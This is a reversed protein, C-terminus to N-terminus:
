KVEFDLITKDTEYHFYLKGCKNYYFGISFVYINKSIIKFDKGNLEDFIKRCEKYAYQKDSSPKKYVDLLTIKNSKKHQDLIQLQKKTM